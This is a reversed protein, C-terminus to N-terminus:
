LTAKGHTINGHWCGAHSADISPSLHLDEFTLGSRAWRVGANNGQTAANDPAPKGALPNLFLVTLTHQHDGIGLRRCPCKFKVGAGLTTGVTLWEPELDVLPVPQPPAQILSM